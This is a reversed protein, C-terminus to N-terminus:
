GRECTRLHVPEQDRQKRRIRKPQGTGRVCDLKNAGVCVRMCVCESACACACMRVRVCVCVCECVRLSAFEVWLKKRMQETVAYREKTTAEVNVAVFVNALVIATARKVGLQCRM